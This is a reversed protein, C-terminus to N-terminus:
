PLSVHRTQIINFPAMNPCPNPTFHCSEIPNHKKIYILFMLSVAASGRYSVNFVYAVQDCQM